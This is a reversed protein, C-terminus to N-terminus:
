PDAPILPLRVMAPHAEGTVLADGQAVEQVLGAGPRGGQTLAPPGQVQGGVEHEPLVPGVGRRAYHPARQGAMGAAHLFSRRSLTPM